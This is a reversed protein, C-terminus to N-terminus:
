SRIVVNNNSWISPPRQKLINIGPLTLLDIWTNSKWLFRRCRGIAYVLAWKNPEKSRIQSNWNNISILCSQNLLIHKTIHFIDFDKDLMGSTKRIMMIVYDFPFMETNSARQALFEGTVPSNGEVLGTVRLKATKVLPWNQGDPITTTQTQTHTRTLRHTDSAQGRSLEPSTWALIM